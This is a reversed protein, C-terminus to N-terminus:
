NPSLDITVPRQGAIKQAATEPARQFKEAAWKECTANYYAIQMTIFKQFDVTVTQDGAIPAFYPNAIVPVNYTNGSEALLRCVEEVRKEFTQDFPDTPLILIPSAVRNYYLHRATRARENALYNYLAILLAIAACTWIVIM